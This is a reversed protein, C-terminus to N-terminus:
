ESIILSLIPYLNADSVLPTPDDPKIFNLKFRASAGSESRGFKGTSYISTNGSVGIILAHKGLLNSAEKKNFNMFLLSGTFECDFDAPLLQLGSIVNNVIVLKMEPIEHSKDPEKGIATDLTYFDAPKYSTSIPIAVPEPTPILSIDNIIEQLQQKLSGAKAKLAAMFGAAKETIQVTSIIGSSQIETEIDLENLIDEVKLSEDNPVYFAEALMEGPSGVPFIKELFADHRAIFMKELKAKKRCIPCGALHETTYKFLVPDSINGSAFDFLEKISLHNKM